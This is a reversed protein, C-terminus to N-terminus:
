TLSKTVGHVAAWWTDRDMVIERLKRLTMDVSNTIGDLCRMRQQGRRGRGEIKVLMLTKGFSDARRM